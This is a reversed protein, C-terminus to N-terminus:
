LHPPIHSYDFLNFDLQYISQIDRIVDASVSSYAELLHKRRQAKQQERTFESRKVADLASSILKFKLQIINDPLERKPIAIKDSIFGQIQFSKWIREAIEKQTICKQIEPAAARDMLVGVIGPISLEARRETLSAKLDKFDSLEIGFSKLSHEVDAAFSEQKVIKYTNFRCPRCLHTIPAWHPELPKRAKAESIIFRLFDEFTALNACIPVVKVSVTKTQFRTFNRVYSSANRYSVALLHRRYRERLIQNSPKDLFRNPREYPLRNPRKPLLKDHHEKLSELRKYNSANYVRITKNIFIPDLVKVSRM